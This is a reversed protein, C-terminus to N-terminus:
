KNKENVYISDPICGEFIPAGGLKEAKHVYDDNPMTWYFIKPHHICRVFRLMGSNHHRYDFAIFDPRGLINVFLGSLALKELFKYQRGEDVKFLNTALQGRCVKPRNRRFWLIPFPHFCEICYEGTYSDLERALTESIETYNGNAPKLEIILPAKGNFLELVEHLEPIREDSKELPYKKMEEATIDEIQIDIGATRSLSSDHIVALKKDKTLHVDLEVGFGHELARSFAAMSNEPIEPKKHLGRHAFRRKALSKAVKNNYRCSTLLCLLLFTLLICVILFVIFIAAAICVIRLIEEPTM